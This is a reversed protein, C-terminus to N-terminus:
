PKLKSITVSAELPDYLTCHVCPRHGELICDGWYRGETSWGGIDGSIKLDPIHKKRPKWTELVVLKQWDRSHRYQPTSQVNYM